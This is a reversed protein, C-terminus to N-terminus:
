NLLQLDNQSEDKKMRPIENLSMSINNDEISREMERMHKLKFSLPSKLNDSLNISVKDLSPSRQSLDIKDTKNM